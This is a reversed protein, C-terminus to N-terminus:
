NTENKKLMSRLRQIGNMSEEESNKLSTLVNHKLIGLQARILRMDDQQSKLEKDCKNFERQM